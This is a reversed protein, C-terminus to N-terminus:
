KKEEPAEPIQPPALTFGLQSMMDLMNYFDWIEVV